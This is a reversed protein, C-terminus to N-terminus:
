RKLEITLDTEFMTLVYILLPEDPYKEFIQKTYDAFNQSPITWLNKNDKANSGGEGEYGFDQPHYFEDFGLEKYAGGYFDM